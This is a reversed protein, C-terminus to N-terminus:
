RHVYREDVKKLKDDITTMGNQKYATDVGDHRFQFLPTM